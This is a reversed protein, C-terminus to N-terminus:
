KGLFVGGQDWYFLYYLQPLGFVDINSLTFVAMLLLGVSGWALQPLSLGAITHRLEILTLAALLYVGPYAVYVLRPLDAIWSYGFHLFALGFMSPLLLSLIIIAKCRQRVLFTGVVAMVPTLFFFANGLHGFYKRFYTILLVYWEGPLKRPLRRLQIITDFLYQENHAPVEMALVNRTLLQFGLYIAGGLGLSVALKPLNIRRVLAYVVFFLYWAFLDYVLLALGLFGGFLVFRGMGPSNDPNLMREYLYVLVMVLAYGPLYNMPQAAFMIFGPGCATLFAAYVAAERGWHRQVFLGTSAVATAWFLVNIVLFVHYNSMFYSFQSSLYFLYSRRLFMLSTGTGGFGYFIKGLESFFEYDANVAGQRPPFIYILFRYDVLKVDEYSPIYSYPSREGLHLWTQLLILLFLGLGAWAATRWGSSRRQVFWATGTAVMALAIFVAAEAPMSPHFPLMGPLWDLRADPSTIGNVFLWGRNNYYLRELGLWHYPLCFILAAVGTILRVLGTRGPLFYKLMYYLVPLTLILYYASTLYGIRSQGTREVASWDFRGYLLTLVGATFVIWILLTTRLSHRRNLWTTSNV